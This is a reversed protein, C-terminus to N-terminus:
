RKVCCFFILFLCWKNRSQSQNHWWYSFMLCEIVACKRFLFAYCIIIISDSKWQVGYIMQLECTMDDLTTAKLKIKENIESYKPCIIFKQNSKKQLKWVFYYYYYYYDPLLGGTLRWWTRETGDVILFINPIRTHFTKWAVPWLLRIIM